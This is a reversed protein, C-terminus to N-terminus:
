LSSVKAIIIFGAIIPIFVLWESIFGIYSFYGLLFMGMTGGVAMNSFYSATGALIVVLITVILVRELIGLGYNELRNKIMTGSAPIPIIEYSYNFQKLNGTTRQYYIRVDVRDRFSSGSINITSLHSEAYSNTGIFGTSGGPYTLNYGYYSLLGNPSVIQFTFNNLGEYYLKPNHTVRVGIFDSNDNLISSKDLPVSYSTFIVPNLEFTKSEYGSKTITFKYRSIPNVAFKIRGTVDSFFIGMTVWSSNVFKSIICNVDEIVKGTASNKFTFTVTNSSNVLYANLTTTTGLYIDINYNRNYYDNGSFTGVFEGVPIDNKIFTGSTTTSINSYTDNHIDITISQTILTLLDEDYISVDLKGLGVYLTQTSNYAINNLKNYLTITNYYKGASLYYNTNYNFDTLNYLTTNQTLYNNKYLTYDTYELNSSNSSYYIYSPHYYGNPVYKSLRERVLIFDYSCLADVPILKITNFPNSTNQTFNYTLKFTNPTSINAYYMRVFNNNVIVRIIAPQGIPVADTIIVNGQDAVFLLNDNQRLRINNKNNAISSFGVMCAEDGYDELLDIKIIAEFNTYNFNYLETHNSNIFNNVDSLHLMSVNYGYGNNTKNFYFEKVISINWRQNNNNYYNPYIYNSPQVIGNYVDQVESLTLTRNLIVFDDISGNFNTNTFSDGRGIYQITIEDYKAITYCQVGDIYFIDNTLNRVMTFHHWDGVSLNGCTFTKSTGDDDEYRLDTVGPNLRVYGKAATTEGFLDLSDSNARKFWLMVSGNEFVYSDDLEIYSGAAENGGSFNIAEKSNNNVGTSSVISHLTGYNYYILSNVRNTTYNITREDFPYVLQYTYFKFTDTFSKNTFYLYGNTENKELPNDWQATVFSSFLIFIVITIINIIIKSM